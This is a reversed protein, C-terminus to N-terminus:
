TPKWEAARKKAEVIQESKMQRELGDRYIAGLAKGGSAALSFWMDAQVDDQLVGDGHAYRLGLKYQADADGKNASQRLLNLAQTDGAAPQQAAVTTSPTTAPPPTQPAVAGQPKWESALKRAEAIQAPTM